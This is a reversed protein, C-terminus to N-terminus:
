TEQPEAYTIDCAMRQTSTHLWTEGIKVIRRLCHRCISM